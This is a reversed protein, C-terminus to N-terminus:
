CEKLACASLLPLTSFSLTTDTRQFSPALAKIALVFPVEISSPIVTNTHHIIHDWHVTSKENSSVRWNPKSFIAQDSSNLPKTSSERDSVAISNQFPYGKSGHIPAQGVVLSPQSLYLYLCGGYLNQKTQFRWLWYRSRLREFIYNTCLMSIM